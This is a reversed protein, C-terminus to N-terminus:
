RAPQLAAQVAREIEDPSANVRGLETVIAGTTETAIAQVNGMAQTRTAAIQSEAERLRDGLEQELTQRQRNAEGAIRDQAERADSQARGRAAALQAEYAAVSADAEAKLRTAEEIDASIRRQRDELVAGVKPLALRSMVFYLIAFSVALWFLQPTWVAPDLQPLGGAAAAEPGIAQQMTAQADPQAM